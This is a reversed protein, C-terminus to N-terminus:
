PRQAEQKTDTDTNSVSPNVAGEGFAQVVIGEVDSMGSGTGGSIHQHWQCLAAATSITHHKAKDMDGSLHAQLCKGALYGVLWFWDAPEKNRDHATGWREIQHAAEIQTGLLFNKVEPKNILATLGEIAADRDRLAEHVAQCGDGSLCPKNM